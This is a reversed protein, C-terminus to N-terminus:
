WSVIVSTVDVERALVQHGDSSLTAAATDLCARDVDALLIARGAGIRRAVSLGMGGSGIVVLVESSVPGPRM